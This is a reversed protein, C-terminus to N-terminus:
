LIHEMQPQEKTEKTSRRTKKRFLTLSVKLLLSLNREKLVTVIQDLEKPLAKLLVALQDEEDVPSQIYVLQTCISKLRNILSSIDENGEM